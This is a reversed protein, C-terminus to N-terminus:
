RKEMVRPSQSVDLKYTGQQSDIGGEGGNFPVFWRRFDYSNGKFELTTRYKKFNVPVEREEATGRRLKLVKKEIPCETIDQNEKLGLYETTKLVWFGQLAAIDAKEPTLIPRPAAALLLPAVLLMRMSSQM